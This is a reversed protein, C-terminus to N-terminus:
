EDLHQVRMSDPAIDRFRTLMYEVLPDPEQVEWNNTYTLGTLGGVPWDADVKLVTDSHIETVLYEENDGSDDPDNIEILSGIECTDRFTASADTLLRDTTVASTAGVESRTSRKYYRFRLLALPFSEHGTDMSGMVDLYIAQVNPDTASLVVSDWRRRAHLTSSTAIFDLLRALNFYSDITGGTKLIVPMIELFRRRQDVNWNEPDFGPLGQYDAFAEMDEVDVKLPNFYELHRERDDALRDLFLGVLRATRGLDGLEPLPTPGRFIVESDQIVKDQPYLQEKEFDNRILFDGGMFKETFVEDRYHFGVPDDEDFTGEYDRGSFAHARNDTTRRQEEPHVVRAIDSIRVEDYVGLLASATDGVTASALVGAWVGLGNQTSGFQVGDVFAKVEDDTASWTIKYNHFETDASPHAGFVTITTGGAVYEFTLSGASIEIRVRNSANVDALFMRASGSTLSAATAAKVWLSVSGESGDFEGSIAIIDINHTAATAQFGNGFYAAVDTTMGNNVGTNAYQSLDDPTSGGLNYLGVTNDDPAHNQQWLFGRGVEETYTQIRDILENVICIRQTTTLPNIYLDIDAILLDRTYTTKQTDTVAPSAVGETFSFVYNRNGVLILSGAFDATLGRFDLGVGANLGSLDITATLTGDAELLVKIENNVTDLIYVNDAAQFLTPDLFAGAVEYGATMNDLDWEEEIDAALPLNNEYPIRIYRTQTVISVWQSGSLTGVFPVAVVFEDVALISSLDVEFDIGETRTDWRWLRQKRQFNIGAIWYKDHDTFIDFDITGVSLTLSVELTIQTESDVSLIRYFGDDAGGDDIELWFGAQIGDTLFTSGASTFVATSNSVGDAGTVISQREDAHVGGLRLGIRKISQDIDILSTSHERFLFFMSYFYQKFGDVTLDAISTSPVSSFAESLINDGESVLEPYKFLSRRIDLNIWDWAVGSTLPTELDSDFAWTLVTQPTELATKANISTLFEPGINVREFPM